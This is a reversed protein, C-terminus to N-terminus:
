GVARLLARFSLPGANSILASARQVVGRPRVACAGLARADRAAVLCGGVLATLALRRVEPASKRGGDKGCERRPTRSMRTKTDHSFKFHVMFRFYRRVNEFDRLISTQDDVSVGLMALDSQLVASSSLFIRKLFSLFKGSAFEPARRARMPCNIGNLRKRWYARRLDHSVFDAANPVTEHCPCGDIWGSLWVLVTAVINVMYVYGWWQKSGIADDAVQVDVGHARSQRRGGGGDFNEYRDLSWYTLAARLKLVQAGAVM